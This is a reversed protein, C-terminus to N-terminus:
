KETNLNSIPPPPQAELPLMGGALAVKDRDLEGRAVGVARIKEGREPMIGRAAKSIAALVIQENPSPRKLRSLTFALNTVNWDGYVGYPKEGRLAQEKRWKRSREKALETLTGAQARFLVADPDIELPWDRRAILKTEVHLIAAMQDVSLGAQFRGDGEIMLGDAEAEYAIATGDLDAVLGLRMISNNNDATRSPTPFEPVPEQRRRSVEIDHLEIRRAAHYGFGWALSGCLVAISAILIWRPRRRRRYSRDREHPEPERRGLVKNGPDSHHSQSMM